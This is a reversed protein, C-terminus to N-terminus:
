NNFFCESICENRTAFMENNENTISMTIHLEFIKEFFFNNLM